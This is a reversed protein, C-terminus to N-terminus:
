TANILFVRSVLRSHQSALVNMVSEFSYRTNLKSRYVFSAHWAHEVERCMEPLTLSHLSILEELDLSFYVFSLSHLNLHLLNAFMKIQCPLHVLKLVYM